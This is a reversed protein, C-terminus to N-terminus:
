NFLEAVRSWEKAGTKTVVERLVEDQRETWLLKTQPPALQTSVELPKSQLSVWKQYCNQPEKTPIFGAVNVWDQPKFDEVYM